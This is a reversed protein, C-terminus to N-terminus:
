RRALRPRARHLRRCAFSSASGSNQGQTVSASSMTSLATTFGPKRASSHRSPCRYPLRMSMRLRAAGSASTAAPMVSTIAARPRSMETPATTAIAAAVPASQTLAVRCGSRPWRRPAPRRARRRVTSHRRQDHGHAHLGDDRRQDEHHGPAADGLEDGAALDDSDVVRGVVIQAVPEQEAQRERGHEGSATMTARCASSVAVGSPSKMRAMPMLGSAARMAPTRARGM